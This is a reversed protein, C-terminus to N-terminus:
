KDGPQIGEECDSALVHISQSVKNIKLEYALVGGEEIFARQPKNSCIGIKFAKAMVPTLKKIEDPTLASLRPSDALLHITVKAGTHEARVITVEGEKKPSLSNVVDAIIEAKDPITLAALASQSLLMSAGLALFYRFPSTM